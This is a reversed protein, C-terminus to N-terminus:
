RESTREEAEGHEQAQRHRTLQAREAALERLRHPTISDPITASSTNAAMGAIWARLNDPDMVILQFFHDPSATGDRHQIHFARDKEDSMQVFKMYSFAIEAGPGTLRQYIAAVIAKWSCSRTGMEGEM